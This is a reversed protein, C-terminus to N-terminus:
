TKGERIGSLTRYANQICASRMDGMRAINGAWRMFM